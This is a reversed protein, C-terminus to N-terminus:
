GYRRQFEKLFACLEDVAEEPQANYLSARVGGRSRHGELQRLGENEAERFFHPLLAPDVLTFPVNMRSRYAPSVDNRYFGGSQDLRAYLRDAKRRNRVALAELGGQDEIWELMLSAVYWAVTNPTNLMSREALHASYVDFRPVGPVDEAIAERDVVVVSLGTIGLNKQAGAFLLAHSAYEVPRSLFNATMDAVLPRSVRPAAHFEVGDVSENDTYYVYDAEPDLNWDSSPPVTVPPQSTRAVVRVEDILRAAEDRARASWFGTVVYDARRRRRALNLPVLGFHPTAGGHMWLVAYRKPLALLRRLREELAEVVSAFLPGRHSVEAVGMGSGRYDLLDAALRELVEIPLYAPGPGFNRARRPPRASSPPANM